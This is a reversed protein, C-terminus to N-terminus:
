KYFVGAGKAGGKSGIFRPRSLRGVSDTRWCDVTLTAQTSSHTLPSVNSEVVAGSKLSFAQFEARYRCLGGFPGVWHTVEM